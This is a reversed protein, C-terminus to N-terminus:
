WDRLEVAWYEYTLLLAELTAANAPERVEGPRMEWPAFQSWETRQWDTRQSARDCHWGAVPSRMMGSMLAAALGDIGAVGPHDSM